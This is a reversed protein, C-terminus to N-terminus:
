ILFGSSNEPAIPLEDLSTIRSDPDMHGADVEQKLLAKAKDMANVIDKAGIYATLKQSGENQLIVYYLTQKILKMDTM